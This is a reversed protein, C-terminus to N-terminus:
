MRLIELRLLMKGSNGPMAVFTARQSRCLSRMAELTLIRGDPSGCRLEWELTAPARLRLTSPERDEALAFGLSLFCDILRPLQSRDALVTPQLGSEFVLRDQESPLRANLRKEVVGALAIPELQCEPPDILVSADSILQSAHHVLEQLRAFVDDSQQPVGTLRLLYATSDISSLPQRLDHALQHFWQRAHALSIEPDAM